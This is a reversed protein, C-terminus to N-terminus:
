VQPQSHFFFLFPRVAYPFLQPPDFGEPESEDRESRSILRSDMRYTPQVDASTLTYVRIRLYHEIVSPTLHPDILRHTM